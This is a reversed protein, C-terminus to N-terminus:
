VFSDAKELSADNILIASDAGMALCNRLGMTATETGAGVIIVEGGLKEKIKLAEEVAFEDYPNVVFAVDTLDIEKGNPAIKIKTATDPVYKVCVVIKMICEGNQM